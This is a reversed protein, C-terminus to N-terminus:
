GSTGSIMRSVRGFVWGVASGAALGALTLGTVFGGFQVELGWSQLRSWSDGGECDPCAAAWLGWRLVFAGYAAMVSLVAVLPLPRLLPWVAGLLFALVVPLAVWALEYDDEPLLRATVYCLAFGAAVLVLSLGFERRTEM